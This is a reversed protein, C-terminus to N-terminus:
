RILRVHSYGNGTWRYEHLERIPEEPDDTEITHVFTWTPAVANARQGECPGDHCVYSPQTTSGPEVKSM